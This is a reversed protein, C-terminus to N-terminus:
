KRSSDLFWIGIAIADAENDDTPSYSLRARVVLVTSEKSGRGKWQEVDPMFVEHGLGRAVGEILGVSRGYGIMAQSSFKAARGLPKRNPAEIVVFQPQHEVCLGRMFNALQELRSPASKAQSPKWCGSKFALEQDMVAWGCKRSSPDISLIKGTFGALRPVIVEVTPKLKRPKKPKRFAGPSMQRLKEPNAFDKPDFGM